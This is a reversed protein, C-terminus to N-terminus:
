ELVWSVAAVTVVILASLVTGLIAARLTAECFESWSM